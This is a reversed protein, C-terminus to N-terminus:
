VAGELSSAPTHFISHFPSLLGIFCNKITNVAPAPVSLRHAFCTTENWRDTASAVPLFGAASIRDAMDSQATSATGASSPISASSRSDAIM